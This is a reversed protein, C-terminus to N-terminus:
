GDAGGETELVQIFRGVLSPDLHSGASRLLEQKAEGPTRAKRYTRDATIAEYADVIAMIRAAVPIDEGRLGRPYGEGNYQEHHYLVVDRVTQSVPLRVLIREGIVTHQEMQQREERTLSGAKGLIGDPIGIKGIDHVIAGLRIEEVDAGPLGAAQALQTAYDAVRRCHGGTYADKTEVADALAAMTGHFLDLNKVTLSLQATLSAMVRLDDAEFSASPRHAQLVGLVQGGALLPLFASGAVLPPPAGPGSPGFAAGLRAVLFGERGTLVRDAWGRCAASEPGLPTGRATRVVRTGALARTAGGLELVLVEVRLWERFANFLVDVAQDLPSASPPAEPGASPLTVTSLAARRATRLAELVVAAAGTGVVFIVLPVVDLFIRWQWFLLVAAVVLGAVAAGAATVIRLARTSVRGPGRGVRAAVPLWAAALIGLAGLTIWPRLRRAAAGRLFANVLNAQIEVGPMVGPFPSSHLDQLEIASAGVLVVKGRIAKDPVREALVDAASVRPFTGAGGAYDIYVQGPPDTHFSWRGLRIRRLDELGAGGAPLGEARRVVELAFSWYPDGGIEQALLARRVGGGPDTPLDISGAAAGIRRLEPMLPTARYVETGGRLREYEHFVALVVNKVDDVTTVLAADGAADRPTGFDVDYGIARAGAASLRRILRAHVGRPWPWPGIDKDKLSHADFLVLLIDPRVPAPFWRYRLDIAIFELREFVGGVGAMYLAAVLVAVGAGLLADARRIRPLRQPSGLRRSSADPPTRWPPWWRM